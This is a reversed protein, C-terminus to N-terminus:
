SLAIGGFHCSLAWPAQEFNTLAPEGQLPTGHLQFDQPTGWLAGGITTGIQSVLNLTSSLIV